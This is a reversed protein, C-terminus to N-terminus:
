FVAPFHRFSFSMTMQLVGDANSECVNLSELWFGDKIKIGREM